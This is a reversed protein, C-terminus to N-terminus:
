PMAVITISAPEAEDGLASDKPKSVEFFSVNEQEFKIKPTKKASLGIDM